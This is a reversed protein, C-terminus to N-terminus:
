IFLMVKKVNSARQLLNWKKQIAEAKKKATNLRREVAYPNKMARTFNECALTLDGM